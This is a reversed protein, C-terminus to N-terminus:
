AADHHVRRAWLSPLCARLTKGSPIWFRIRVVMDRPRGNAGQLADPLGCDCRQCEDLADKALNKERWHRVICATPSAGVAPICALVAHVAFGAQEREDDHGCFFHMAAVSENKESLKSMIVTNGVGAGASLIKVRCSRDEAKRQAM